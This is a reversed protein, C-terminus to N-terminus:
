PALETEAPEAKEDEHLRVLTREETRNKDLHVLLPVTEQTLNWLGCEAVVDDHGRVKFAVRQTKSDINGYLETAKNSEVDVINGRVQGRKNTALQLIRKSESQKNDAVIAFTGMPLWDSEPAETSTEAVTETEAKRANTAEAEALEQAQRYYEDASVYPVGNIYVTEGEYVINSGYYYPVPQVVADTM